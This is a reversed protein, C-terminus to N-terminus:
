RAPSPRNPVRAKMSPVAAPSHRRTGGSLAFTKAQTLPTRGNVSLLGLWNRVARGGARELACYAVSYLSTFATPLAVPDVRVSDWASRAVNTEVLGTGAM